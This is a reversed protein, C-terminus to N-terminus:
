GSWTTGRNVDREVDFGDAWLAHDPSRPSHPNLAATGRDRFAKRGADWVAREREAEAIKLALDEAPDEM